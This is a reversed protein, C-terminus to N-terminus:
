GFRRFEGSLWPHKKAFNTSQQYEAVDYNAIQSLLSARMTTMKTNTLNEKVKLHGIFFAVIVTVIILLEITM